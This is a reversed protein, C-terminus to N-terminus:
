QPHNYEIIIMDRKLYYYIHIIITEQKDRVNKEKGGKGM